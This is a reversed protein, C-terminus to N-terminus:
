TSASRGGQFRQSTPTCFTRSTTSAARVSWAYPMWSRALTMENLAGAQDDAGWRSPFWDETRAATTGEALVTM